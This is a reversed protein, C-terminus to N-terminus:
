TSGEFDGEDSVCNLFQPRGQRRESRDRKTEQSAKQKRLDSLVRKEPNQEGM